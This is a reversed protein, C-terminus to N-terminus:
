DAFFGNSTKLEPKFRVRESEQDPVRFWGALGVDFTNLLWALLVSGKESEEVVTSVLCLL